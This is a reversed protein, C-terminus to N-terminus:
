SFIGALFRRAQRLRAWAETGSLAIVCRVISTPSASPRVPLARV